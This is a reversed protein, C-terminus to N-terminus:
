APPNSRPPEQQHHSRSRLALVAILTAVPVGFIFLMTLLVVLMELPGIGGIFGFTLM